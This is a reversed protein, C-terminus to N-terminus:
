THGPGGPRAQWMCLSYRIETFLTDGKLNNVLSYQVGETFGTDRYHMTFLTDGYM